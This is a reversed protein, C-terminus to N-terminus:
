HYPQYQPEPGRVRVKNFANMSNEGEWRRNVVERAFAFANLIQNWQISFYKRICDFSFLTEASVDRSAKLQVDPPGSEQTSSASQGAQVEEVKKWTSSSIQPPRSVQSSQPKATSTRADIRNLGEQFIWYFLLFVKDYQQSVIIKWFRSLPLKASRFM